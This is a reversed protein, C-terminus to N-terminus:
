VKSQEFHIFEKKMAIIWEPDLLAEKITKPKILSLYASFACM